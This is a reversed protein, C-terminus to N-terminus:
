IKRYDSISIEGEICGLFELVSVTPTVKLPGEQVHSVGKYGILRDM